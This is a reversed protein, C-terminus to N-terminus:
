GAMADETGLAQEVVKAHTLGRFEEVGDKM